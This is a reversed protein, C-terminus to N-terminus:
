KAPEYKKSTWAGARERLDHCVALKNFLDRARKGLWCDALWHKRESELEWPDQISKEVEFCVAIYVDWDVLRVQFLGNRAIIEGDNQWDCSYEFSKPLMARVDERLDAWFWEREPNDHDPWDVYVCHGDDTFYNGRGM